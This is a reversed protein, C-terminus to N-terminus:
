KQTRLRVIPCGNALVAGRTFSVFTICAGQVFQSASHVEVHWPCWCIRRLARTRNGPPFLLCSCFNKCEAPLSCYVNAKLSQSAPLSSLCTKCSYQTSDICRICIQTCHGKAPADATKCTFNVNCKGQAFQCDHLTENFGICFPLLFFPGGSQSTLSSYLAWLSCLIWETRRRLFLKLLELNFCYIWNGRQYSHLLLYEMFPIRQLLHLHFQEEEEIGKWTTSSFWPFWRQGAAHHSKRRALSKSREKWKSSPPTIMCIGAQLLLVSFLTLNLQGASGAPKGSWLNSHINQFNHLVPPLAEATIGVLLLPFICLGQLGTSFLYAAQVNM